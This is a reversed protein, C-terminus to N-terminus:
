ENIYSKMKEYSNLTNTDADNFKSSYTNYSGSPNLCLNTLEIYNHYFEKLDDYADKYQEPPNKLKNYLKNVEKKNTEVENTIDKFDSDSFLNSLSDNFDDYFRGYRNKTYQNTEYDDKEWITNYWVKSILNGCKEAAAGGTVMKYTISGLNDKYDTIEKKAKDNKTKIVLFVIIALIILGIIISTIIIKKNKKKKIKKNSEKIEEEKKKPCGCNSCLEENDKLETGCEECFYKQEIIKKGCHVCEIAQNSVEKKCNPCKIMSM